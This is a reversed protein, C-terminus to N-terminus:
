LRYPRTFKCANNANQSDQKEIKGNESTLEKKDM